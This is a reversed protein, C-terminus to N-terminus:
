RGSRGPRTSAPGIIVAGTLSDYRYGSDVPAKQGAKGVNGQDHPIGVTVSGSRSAIGDSATFFIKYFCHTRIGATPTGPSRPASCQFRGRGPHAPRVRRARRAM